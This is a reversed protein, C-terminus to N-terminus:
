PGAPDAPESAGDGLAHDLARGAEAALVADGVDLAYALL